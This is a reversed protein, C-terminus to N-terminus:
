FLSYETLYSQVINQSITYQIVLDLDEVDVITIGDIKQYM